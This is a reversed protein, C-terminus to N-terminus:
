PRASWRDLRGTAIIVQGDLCHHQVPVARQLDEQDSVEGNPEGAIGHQRASRPMPVNVAPAPAPWTSCAAAPRSPDPGTGRIGDRRITIRSDRPQRQDAYIHLDVPRQEKVTRVLTRIMAPTPSATRNHHFPRHPRMACRRTRSCWSGSTSSFGHRTSAWAPSLSPGVWDQRNAQSGSARSQTSWNSSESPPSPHRGIVRGARGLVPPYTQAVAAALPGARGGSPLDLYLETVRRWDAPTRQEASRVSRVSRPACRV